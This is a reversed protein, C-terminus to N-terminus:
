VHSVAVEEEEEKEIETFAGTELDINIAGYQEELEKKTKEIDVNITALDHLLAHKRSELLGINHVVESLAQQQDKITSLQEETITNSM